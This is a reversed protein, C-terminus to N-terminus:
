QAPLRPTTARGDFRRRPCRCPRFLDHDTRAGGLRDAGESLQSLFRVHIDAENQLGIWRCTVDDLHSSSSLISAESVDPGKLRAYQPFVCENNERGHEGGSGLDYDSWHHGIRNWRSQVTMAEMNAVIFSINPSRVTHPIPRPSEAKRTIPPLGIEMFPKASEIVVM